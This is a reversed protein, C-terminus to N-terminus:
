YLKETCLFKETPCVNKNNSSLLLRVLKGKTPHSYLIRTVGTQPLKKYM